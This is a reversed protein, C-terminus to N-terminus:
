PANRLILPLHFLYRITIDYFSAAGQYENAGIREGACGV